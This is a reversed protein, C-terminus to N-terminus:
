DGHKIRRRRNRLNKTGDLAVKMNKKKRPKVKKPGLQGRKKSKKKGEDDEDSGKGRKSM